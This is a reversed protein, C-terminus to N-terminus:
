RRHQANQLLVPCDSQWVAKKQVAQTNGRAFLDQQEQCWQLKATSGPGVTLYQSSVFGATGSRTQVPVWEGRVPEGTVTVTEFRELVGLVNYDLGPGARLRLSTATIYWAQTAPMPHEQPPQPSPSVRPEVEAAPGLPVAPPTEPTALGIAQVNEQNRHLAMMPRQLVPNSWVYLWVVASPLGLLLASQVLFASGRSEWAHKIRSMPRRSLGEEAASLLPRLSASLRQDASLELAMTALSRALFTRGTSAFYRAQYALLRANTDGPRSGGLLNHVLAHVTYFPGWPIGWWGLLCTLFTARLVRQDACKRCYIGQIPSRITTVILSIVEYFIVYKPQIPIRRCSVCVIPELVKSPKGGAAAAAPIDICQADYAARKVPHRLAEYAQVLQKFTEQAATSPHRDPHAQMALRRFAQKIEAASATHAVGLQAYYGKPDRAQM